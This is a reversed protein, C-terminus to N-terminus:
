RNTKIFHMTKLQDNSKLCLTYVGPILESVSLKSAYNTEMVKVGISNYVEIKEPTDIENLIINLEDTAPNPFLSARKFAPADISLPNCYNLSTGLPTVTVMSNTPAFITDNLQYMGYSGTAVQLNNRPISITSDYPYCYNNLTSDLTFTLFRQLGNNYTLMKLENNEFYLDNAHFFHSERWYRTLVENGNADLKLLYHGYEVGNYMQGKVYIYGSSDIAMSEPSFTIPLSLTANYFAYHWLMQCNKDVRTLIAYQTTNAFNFGNTLIVAGSDSTNILKKFADYEYATAVMRNAIRHGISDFKMVNIYSRNTGLGSVLWGGPFLSPQVLSFQLYYNDMNYSAHIFNGNTDLVIIGRPGYMQLQQSVVYVYDGSRNVETVVNAVLSGWQCSVDKAWYINGVSDRKYVVNNSFGYKLEAKVSFSILLFAILLLKRM